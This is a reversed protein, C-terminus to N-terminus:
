GSTSIATWVGAPPAGDILVSGTSATPSTITIYHNSMSGSSSTAFFYNSRYADTPLITALFPDGLSGSVSHSLACQM